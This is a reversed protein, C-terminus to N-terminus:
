KKGRRALKKPLDSLYDAGAKVGDITWGLLTRSGRQVVPKVHKTASVTASVISEAVRIGLRLGVYGVVKVWGVIEKGHEEHAGAVTLPPHQPNQIPVANTLSAGGQVTSGHKAIQGLTVKVRPQVPTEIRTEHLWEQPPEFVPPSPTPARRQVWGHGFHFGKKEPCPYSNMSRWDPDTNRNRLKYEECAADAESETTYLTKSGFVKSKCSCIGM